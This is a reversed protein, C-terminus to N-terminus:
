KGAAVTVRHYNFATNNSICSFHINELIEIHNGLDISQVFITKCMYLTCLNTHFHHYM